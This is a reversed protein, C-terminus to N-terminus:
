RVALISYGEGLRRELDKILALEEETLTDPRIEACSFALLTKGMKKELERVAELKEGEIRAFSCLM